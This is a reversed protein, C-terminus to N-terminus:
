VQNESDILFALRARADEYLNRDDRDRKHLPVSYANIVAVEVDIDWQTYYVDRRISIANLVSFVVQKSLGDLLTNFAEKSIIYVSVLVESVYRNLRVTVLSPIDLEFIADLIVNEYSSLIVLNEDDTNLSIMLFLMRRSVSAPNSGNLCYLLKQIDKSVTERQLSYLLYEHIGSANMMRILVEPDEMSGIASFVREKKTLDYGNVVKM